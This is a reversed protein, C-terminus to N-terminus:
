SDQGRSGVVELRWTGAPLAFIEDVQLHAATTGDERHVAVHGFRQKAAVMVGGNEQLRLVVAIRSLSADEGIVVHAPPSTRGFTLYTGPQLPIELSKGAAHFRVTAEATVRM